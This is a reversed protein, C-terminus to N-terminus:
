FQAHMYNLIHIDTDDISQAKTRRNRFVSNKVLVNVLENGPSEESFGFSWHQM